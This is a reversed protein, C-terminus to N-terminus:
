SGRRQRGPVDGRRAPEVRAYCRVHLLQQAVRVAELEDAYTNFVVVAGSEKVALVAYQAAADDRRPPKM